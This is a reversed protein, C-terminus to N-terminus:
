RCYLNHILNRDHTSFIIFDMEETSTQEPFMISSRFDDHALGLVHGFEHVLTRMTMYSNTLMFTSVAAYIDGNEVMGHNTLGGVRDVHVTATDNLTVRVRPALLGGLQARPVQRLLECGMQSNVIEIASTIETSDEVNGSVSLPFDREQWRIEQPFSCNDQNYDAAGGSTWCVRLLGAETHSVVGYVISGIIAVSVLSIVSIIIIKSKINM